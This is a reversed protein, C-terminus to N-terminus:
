IGHDLFSLCHPRCYPVTPIVTLCQFESLWGAKCLSSSIHHSTAHHCALELAEALDDINQASNCLQVMFAAYTHCENSAVASM